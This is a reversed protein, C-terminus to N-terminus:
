GHRRYKKLTLGDAYAANPSARKRWVGRALGGGVGNVAATSSGEPIAHLCVDNHMDGFPISSRGVGITDRRRCLSCRSPVARAQGRFCDAAGCICSRYHDDLHKAPTSPYSCTKCSPSYTLGSTHRHTHLHCWFLYPFAHEAGSSRRVRIVIPYRHSTGGYRAIYVSTSVFIDV